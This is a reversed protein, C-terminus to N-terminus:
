IEEEPEEDPREPESEPPKQGIPIFHVHGSFGGIPMRDLNSDFTRDKNLRGTGIELWVFHKRSRDLFRKVLANHTPDTSDAM